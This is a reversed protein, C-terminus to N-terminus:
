RNIKEISECIALVAVASWTMIKTSLGVGEGNQILIVSAVLTLIVMLWLLIKAM